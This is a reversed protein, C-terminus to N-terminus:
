FNVWLKLPLERYGHKVRTLVNNGDIGIQREAADVKRRKFVRYVVSRRDSGRGFGLNNGAIANHLPKM